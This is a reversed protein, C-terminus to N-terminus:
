TFNEAPKRTHIESAGLSNLQEALETIKQESLTIDEVATSSCRLGYTTVQRGDESTATGPIIQWM